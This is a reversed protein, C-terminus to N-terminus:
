QSYFLLAASFSYALIIWGAHYIGHLLMKWKSNEVIFGRSDLLAQPQNESNPTYAGTSSMTQHGVTSQSEAQSIQFGSENLHLSSTEPNQSIMERPACPPEHLHISSTEMFGTDIHDQQPQSNM